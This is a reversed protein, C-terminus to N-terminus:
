DESVQKKSQPGTNEGGGATMPMSSTQGPPSNGGTTSSSAAPKAKSKKSRPKKPAQGAASSSAPKAAGTPAGTKKSPVAGPNGGWDEDPLCVNGRRLMAAGVDDPVEFIDGRRVQGYSGSMGRLARLQM